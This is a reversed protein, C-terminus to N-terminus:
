FIHASADSQPKSHGQKDAKICTSNILWYKSSVVVQLTKSYTHFEHYAVVIIQLYFSYGLLVVVSHYFIILHYALCKLAFCWFLDGTWCLVGTTSIYLNHSMLWESTSICIAHVVDQCMRFDQHSGEAWQHQVIDIDSPFHPLTAIRETNSLSVGVTFQM